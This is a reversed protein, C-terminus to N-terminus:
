VPVPPKVFLLPENVWTTCTLVDVVTVDERLGDFGDCDTVKVAVTVEVFPIGEPVIAKMSPVVVRAEPTLTLVVVPLAVNAVEDNAAPVCGMVATKVPAVPQSPLEDVASLWTTFAVVVM